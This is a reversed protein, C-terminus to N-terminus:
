FQSSLLAKTFSSTTFLKILQFARSLSLAMHLSEAGGCAHRIVWKVGGLSCIIIKNNNNDCGVVERM